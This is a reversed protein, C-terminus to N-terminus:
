PDKKPPAVPLTAVNAQPDVKPQAPPAPSPAPAEIKKPVSLGMMAESVKDYGLEKVIAACVHVESCGILHTDGVQEDYWGDPVDVQSRQEAEIEKKVECGPADCSFRFIEKIAMVGEPIPM